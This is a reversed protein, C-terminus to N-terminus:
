LQWEEPNFRLDTYTSVKIQFYACAMGSFAYRDIESLSIRDDLYITHEELATKELILRSMFQRFLERNRDMATERATMDDVAHPYGLFVTKVRETHPSNDTFLVGQSIDSAAVLPKRSKFRALADQFGDLGSVRCFTYGLSRAFRNERTLREFFETSDWNFNRPLDETM